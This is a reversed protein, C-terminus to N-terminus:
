KRRPDECHIQPAELGPALKSGNMETVLDNYARIVERARRQSDV